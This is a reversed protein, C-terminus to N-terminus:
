LSIAKWHIATINIDILLYRHLLGNSISIIHELAVDTMTFQQTNTHINRHEEGRHRIQECARVCARVCVCVCVCKGKLCIM